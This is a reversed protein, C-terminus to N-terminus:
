VKSSKEKRQVVKELRKREKKSLIKLNNSNPTVTLTKRKESPLVRANADDFREM